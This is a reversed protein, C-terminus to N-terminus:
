YGLMWLNLSSYLVSVYLTVEKSRATLITMNVKCMGIPILGVFTCPQFKTSTFLNVVESYFYHFITKSVLLRRKPLLYKPNETEDSIIQSLVAGQGVTRGLRLLNYM